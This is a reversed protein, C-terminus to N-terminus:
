VRGNGQHPDTKSFSTTGTLNLSPLTSSWTGFNAGGFDQLPSSPLLSQCQPSKSCVKFIYVCVSAMERPHVWRHVDGAKGRKVMAKSVIWLGAMLVAPASSIKVCVQCRSCITWVCIGGSFGLNSMSFLILSKMGSLQSHTVVADHKNVTHTHTHAPSFTPILGTDSFLWTPM